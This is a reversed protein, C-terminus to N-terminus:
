NLRLSALFTVVEEDLMRFQTTLAHCSKAMGKTSVDANSLSQSVDQVDSFVSQSGSAANQVSRTIEETAASQEEIAAAISQGIETISSISKAMREIETAVLRTAEQISSVQSTIDETARATQNALSKVEGAVVAFGKGMEGARAAEITANLALLNTQSAISNILGVVDGIRLANQELEVVLTNTKKADDVANRSIISYQSVQSSIEHISISLEEVAAAVTQLNANAKAAAESVQRCQGDSAVMQASLDMAESSLGEAVTSVQKVVVDVSKEFNAALSGRLLAQEEEACRKLEEQSARLEDMEKLNKKFVGMAKAMAGVEDDYKPHPVDVSYDGLALAGMVETMREVPRTIASLIITVAAGVLLLMFLGGAVWILIQNRLTQRMNVTTLRLELTGLVTSKGGETRSIPSHTSIFDDKAEINGHQALIKGSSDVVISALYDPDRGLAALLNKEAESDLDWLAQALADAQISASLEARTTLDAKSEAQRQAAIMFVALSISLALLGGIMALARRKLSSRVEVQGLAGSQLTINARLTSAASTL